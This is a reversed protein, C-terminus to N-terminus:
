GGVCRGGSSNRARMSRWPRSGSGTLGDELLLELLGSLLVGAQALLQPLVFGGDGQELPVDGDVGEFPESL